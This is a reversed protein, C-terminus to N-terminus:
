EGVALVNAWEVIDVAEGEDAKRKMQRVFFELPTTM